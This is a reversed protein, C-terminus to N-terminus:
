ALDQMRSGFKPHHMHHYMRTLQYFRISDIVSTANISANRPGPILEVTAHLCVDGLLLARATPLERKHPAEFTMVRTM